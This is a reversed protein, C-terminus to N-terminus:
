ARTELSYIHASFCLAKEKSAAIKDYASLNQLCRPGLDAPVSLANQGNSVRIINRIKKSEQSLIHYKKASLLLM